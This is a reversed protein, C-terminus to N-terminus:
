ATIFYFIHDSLNYSPNINFHFFVSCSVRSLDRSRSHSISRSCDLTLSHWSRVSV